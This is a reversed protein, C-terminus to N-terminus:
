GFIFSVLCSTLAGLRERWGLARVDARVGELEHHTLQGLQGALPAAVHQDAPCLQVGVAPPREREEEVVEARVLVGGVLLHVSQEVVVGVGMLVDLM